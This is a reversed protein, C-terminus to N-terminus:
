IEEKRLLPLLHYEKSEFDIDWHALFDNFDSSRNIPVLIVRNSLREIEKFNKIARDFMVKKSQSLSKLSYQYLVSPKINYIESLYKMHKVSFGERILTLWIFRDYDDLKLIQIDVQKETLRTIEEKVDSKTVTNSLIIVDLDSSNLSGKVFSGFLIIDIIEKNKLVPKLKKALLNM